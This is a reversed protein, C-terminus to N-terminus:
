EQEQSDSERVALNKASIIREPTFENNLLKLAIILNDISICVQKYRQYGGPVKKNFHKNFFLSVTSKAVGAKEALDKFSIPESKICSDDAYEHHETLASIIKLDSDTRNGAKRAGRKRGSSRQNARDKKHGPSGSDARLTSRLDSLLKQLYEGLSRYAGVVRIGDIIQPPGYEQIYQDRESESCALIFLDMTGSMIFKTESSLRKADADFGLDILYSNALNVDESSFKPCRPMDKMTFVPTGNKEREAWAEETPHPAMENFKEVCAMLGELLSVTRALKDQRTLETTPMKAGENGDANEVPDLWPSKGTLLEEGWM